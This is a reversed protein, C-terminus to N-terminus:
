SYHILVPEVRYEIYNDKDLSFSGPLNDPLLFEFPVTYQGKTIQKDFDM